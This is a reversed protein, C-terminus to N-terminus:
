IRRLEEEAEEETYFGDEQISKEVADMKEMFRKFAEDERIQAHATTLQRAIDDVKDYSAQHLLNNKRTLEQTIM